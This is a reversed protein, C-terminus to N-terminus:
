PIPIWDVIEGDRPGTDEPALFLAEAEAFCFLDASSRQEINLATVGDPALRLRAPLVQLRSNPRVKSYWLSAKGRALVEAEPRGQYLQCFARGLLAFITFTSAPNGPLGLLWRRRGDLTVTGFFTPKGPKIRISEIRAEGGLEAFAGRVLDKTGMSVGGITCVLDHSALAEALVQKTRGGDDRLVPLRTPVGGAEAVQAALAWANSNRVQGPGPVAGVEVVEDGTPLVAVRPRRGVTVETRGAWALVGIAASTVRTGPRLLAEGRRRVSGQGRVNDGARVPGEFRVTGDGAPEFGSTREVPVVADAGAPILGGTMVRTCAGGPLDGEFPAGALSQGVLRLRDAGDLDAARVAFGDMASDDAAPFDRDADVGAVLVRGLAADLAVTEVRDDGDRLEAAVRGLAEDLRIMERGPQEM